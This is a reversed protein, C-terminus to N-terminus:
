NSKFVAHYISLTVGSFEKPLYMWTVHPLIDEGVVQRKFIGANSKLWYGVLHSPNRRSGQFSIVWFNPLGIPAVWLVRAYLVIEAM